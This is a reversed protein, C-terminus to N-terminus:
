LNKVQHFTEKNVLFQEKPSYSQKYSIFTATMLWCLIVSWTLNIITTKKIM